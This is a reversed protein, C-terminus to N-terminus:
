TRVNLIEKWLVPFLQWCRRQHTYWNSLLEYHTIGLLGNQKLVSTEKKKRKNRETM